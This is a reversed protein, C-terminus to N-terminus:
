NVTQERTWGSWKFILRILCLYFLRKTLGCDGPSRPDLRSTKNVCVKKYLRENENHLDM